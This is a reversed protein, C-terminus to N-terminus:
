HTACSVKGTSCPLLSRIIIRLNVVVIPELGAAPVSCSHATGQEPEATSYMLNNRHLCQAIM